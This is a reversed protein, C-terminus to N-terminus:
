VTHRQKKDAELPPRSRVLQFPTSSFRFLYALTLDLLVSDAANVLTFDKGEPRNADSHSIVSGSLSRKNPDASHTPTM